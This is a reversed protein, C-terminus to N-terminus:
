WEKMEIGLGANTNYIIKGYDYAVGTAIDDALLLPGDMDLYDLM